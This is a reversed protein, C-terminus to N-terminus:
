GLLSARSRLSGLIRKRLPYIDSINNNCLSLYGINTQTELNVLRDLHQIKKIANNELSLRKLWTLEAIEKPIESLLLYNLDLNENKNKKCEAIRGRTDALANDLASAQGFCKFAIIFLCFASCSLLRFSKKLM